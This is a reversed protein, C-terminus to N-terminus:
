RPLAGEAPPTGQMVLVPFPKGAEGVQV